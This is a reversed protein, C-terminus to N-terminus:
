PQPAPGVAAGVTIKMGLGMTANSASGLVCVDITDGTKAGSFTMEIDASAAKGGDTGAVVHPAASLAVGKKSAVSAGRLGKLEQPRRGSIETRAELPQLRAPRQQM